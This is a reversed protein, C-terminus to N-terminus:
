ISRRRAKQIITPVTESWTGTDDVYCDPEPVDLRRVLMIEGRPAKKPPQYRNSDMNALRRGTAADFYFVDHRM